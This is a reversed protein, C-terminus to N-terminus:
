NDEIGKQTDDILKDVMTEAREYEKNKLAEKLDKLDQLLRRLYSKFVSMEETLNREEKNNLVKGEKVINMIDSNNTITLKNKM